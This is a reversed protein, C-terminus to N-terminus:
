SEYVLSVEDHTCSTSVRAVRAAARPARIEGRRPEHQPVTATGRALAVYVLAMRMDRDGLARLIQWVDEGRKARETMCWHRFVHWGKGEPLYRDVEDGLGVRLRALFLELYRESWPFLFGDVRGKHNGMRSRLEPAHERLWCLARHTEDDVVHVFLPDGNKRQDNERQREIRLVHTDEDYDTARLGLAEGKRIGVRAAVLLFADEGRNRALRRCRALFDAPPVFVAPLARRRPKVALVNALLKKDGNMPASARVVLRLVKLVYSAYSATCGRSPLTNSYWDQLAEVGPADPLAELAHRMAAAYSTRTNRALRPLHVRSYLVWAGSVGRM